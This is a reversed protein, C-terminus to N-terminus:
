DPDAPHNQGAYLRGPCLPLPIESGFQPQDSQADFPRAFCQPFFQGLSFRRLFGLLQFPRLLELLQFPQFLFPLFLRGLFPFQQFSLQQFPLERQAFQAYFWRQKEHQAKTPAFDFPLISYAGM